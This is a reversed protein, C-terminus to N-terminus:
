LEGVNCVSPRVSLRCTIAVGRKASFHMARYFCLRILLIGFANTSEKATHCIVFSYSSNATEHTSQRVQLHTKDVAFIHRTYASSARRGHMASRRSQICTTPAVLRDDIVSNDTAEPRTCVRTEVRGHRAAM